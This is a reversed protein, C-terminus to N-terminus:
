EESFQIWVESQSNCTHDLLDIVMGAGESGTITFHRAFSSIHGCAEEEGSIYTKTTGYDIGLPINTGM